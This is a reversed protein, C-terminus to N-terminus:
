DIRFHTKSASFSVIKHLENEHEWKNALHRSGYISDLETWQVFAEEGDFFIFQVSLLNNQVKQLDNKLVKALNMLMACPVASDTAGVFGHIEKSDFHCAFTLYRAANRNLRSIINVFKVPKHPTNDIFEDKEISWGLNHMYDAIYERVITNNETGPVREILINSLVQHIEGIDDLKDVFQVFVSESMVKYYHHHDNQLSENLNSNMVLGSHIVLLSIVCICSRRM